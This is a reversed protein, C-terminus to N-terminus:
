KKLSMQTVALTSGTSLAIAKHHRLGKVTELAVMWSEAEDNVFAHLNRVNGELRRERLWDQYKVIPQENLKQLLSVYLSGAGLEGEQGVDCLKVILTDIL